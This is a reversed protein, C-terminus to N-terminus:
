YQGKKGCCSSSSSLWGRLRAQGSVGRFCSVYRVIKGITKGNHTVRGSTLFGTLIVTKVKIYSNLHLIHKYLVSKAKISNNFICLYTWKWSGNCQKPSFISSLFIMIFSMQNSSKSVKGPLCYCHICQWKGTYINLPLRYFM